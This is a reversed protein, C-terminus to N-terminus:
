NVLKIIDPYRLALYDALERRLAKQEAPRFVVAGGPEKSCLSWRQLTKNKVFVDASLKIEPPAEPASLEEQSSTEVAEEEPQRLEINRKRRGM